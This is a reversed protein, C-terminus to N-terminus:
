KTLSPNRSPTAPSTMALEAANEVKRLYALSQSARSSRRKRLAAGSSEAVHPRARDKENEERSGGERLIGNRRGGRFGRRRRRQEVHAGAGGRKEVIGASLGARRRGALLEEGGAHRAHRRLADQERSVEVHAPGVAHRQALEVEGHVRPEAVVRRAQAVVQRVGGSRVQEGDGGDAVGRAPEDERTRVASRSRARGVGDEPRIERPEVHADVENPPAIRPERPGVAQLPPCAVQQLHRRGIRRRVARLRPEPDVTRLLDHHLRHLQVPLPALAPPEPDAGRLLDLAAPDELVELDLRDARPM